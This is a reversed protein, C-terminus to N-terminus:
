VKAGIAKAYSCQIDVMMARLSRRKPDGAELIDNARKWDRDTMMTAMQSIRNLMDAALKKQGINQFTADPNMMKGLVIKKYDKAEGKELARRTSSTRRFMESDWYLSALYANPERRMVKGMLDPCFEGMKVLFGATDISFFQSIRLQKKSAGTQWMYMYEIPIDVHNKKLYWWVDSDKFDYVPLLVNTTGTAETGGSKKMYAAFYNRRQISEAIRVGLIQVGDRTIRAFLTQYNDKRIKLDPHSKIAFEPMQRVWDARKNRDWCIFSEDSELNNFCNFHKVEICYWRFEAGAMMFKLRWENVIRDVDDFIAEEDIFIVKLLKPDILREQIMSLIIHALVLSDKGGSFGLYVPLKHKFINTIRIKAAEIVDIDGEKLVTGTAMADLNGKWLAPM